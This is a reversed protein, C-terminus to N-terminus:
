YGKEFDVRNFLSFGDQWRQCNAVFEEAVQEPFSVAAIHPTVTIGPHQWFPHGDALPEKCFVDLYAHQIYNAEIAPILADEDLTQGRGVNFLIAQNCYSLLERNLLKETEATAPLTNVVIQAKSLAMRVENVHFIQEFPSQKPPIGSRNIGITHIGFASAVQSLHSGISGTGLIVMTQGALSRYRCPKWQQKRQQYKYYVLHRHHSTLFGLVYESILQGFIGKINTLQYGKRLEPAILADVGAYISQLWELKPFDDLCKAAMPPSALLVTAQSRDQTETFGDLPYSKLLDRYRDNNHTLIYYLHGSHSM